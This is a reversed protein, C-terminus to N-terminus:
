GTRKKRKSRRSLQKFKQKSKFYQKGYTKSLSISNHKMLDYGNVHNLLINKNQFAIMFLDQAFDIHLTHNLFDKDKLMISEFNKEM